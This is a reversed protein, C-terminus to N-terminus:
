KESQSLPARYIQIQLSFFFSASMCNTMEQDRLVNRNEKDTTENSVWHKHTLTKTQNSHGTSQQLLVFEKCQYTQLVM